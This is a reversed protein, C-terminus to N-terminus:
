LEEKFVNPHRDIKGYPKVSKSLPALTALGVYIHNLWDRGVLSPRNGQVVLLDLEKEQNKYIVRVSIAGETKVVEGAKCQRTKTCSCRSKVLPQSM